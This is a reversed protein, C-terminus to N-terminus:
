LAGICGGIIAGAPGGICGIEAGVEAGAYAGVGGYAAEAGVEVAEPSKCLKSIAWGANTVTGKELTGMSVLLGLSLTLGFILKMKNM